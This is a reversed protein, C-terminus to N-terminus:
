LYLEGMGIEPQWNCSPLVEGFNDDTEYEDVIDDIPFCETSTSAIHKANQLIAKQKKKTALKASKKASVKSLDYKSRSTKATKTPDAQKHPM